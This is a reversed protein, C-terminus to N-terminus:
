GFLDDLVVENQVVGSHSNKMVGFTTVFTNLLAMKCKSAVRFIEIRNRLKTEYSKDIIFEGQSFKMECVNIVRDARKILLDIQAGDTNCDITRSTCRWASCETAIGNIGLSKKIQDLHAFCVQEFSIGQWSVIGPNMLNHQWYEKDKSKQKECFHLHFLTFFDTLRYTGNNSKSGFQSFCEVFDCRELNALMRTLTGGSIKTIRALEQRSMGSQKKSLKEVIRIYSDAGSFLANYLENFEDHLAGDKDFYLRDINQALSNNVDLLDLYFPVGGLVMYCQTIQFRDWYCNKNKLFLECERLSFPHLNIKRTIRNHLGGQNEILKDVMWSTASGCAIFLIDDRNAAWSNWFYEFASVFDSKFTDIWPMEDFFVIKRKARSTCLLKELASFAENWNKLTPAFTSKSYEKLCEAFNQLQEAQSKNHAGTYSFSFRERFVSQILFTKGIRRRGYVVALESKGSSYAEELLKIEKERGVMKKM